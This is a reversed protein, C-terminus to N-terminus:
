MTREYLENLLKRHVRTTNTLESVKTSMAEFREVYTHFRQRFYFFLFTVVMSVLLLLSFFAIMKTNIYVPPNKKPLAPTM